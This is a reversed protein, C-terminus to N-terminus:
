ETEYATGTGGSQEGSARVWSMGVALHNQDYRGGISAATAWRDSVAPALMAPFLEMDTPAWAAVLVVATPVEELLDLVLSPRM